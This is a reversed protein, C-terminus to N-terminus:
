SIFANLQDATMVGSKRKIEIGDIYLITTPVSRIQNVKALDRAEDIDVFKFNDVNIPKNDLNAKYMKCPGCWSATFILLTKIM